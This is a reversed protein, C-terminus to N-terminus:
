SADSRHTFSVAHKSTLRLRVCLVDHQQPVFIRHTTPMALPWNEGAEADFNLAREARVPLLWEPVRGQKRSEKYVPAPHGDWGVNKSGGTM